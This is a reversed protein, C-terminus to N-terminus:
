TKADISTIHVLHYDKVTFSFPLSPNFPVVSLCELIHVICINKVIRINYLIVSHTNEAFSRHCFTQQKLHFLLM